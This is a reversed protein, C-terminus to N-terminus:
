ANSFAKCIRATRPNWIGRRKLHRKLRNFRITRTVTSVAHQEEFLVDEALRSAPHKGLRLLLDWQIYELKAIDIAIAADKRYDLITELCYRKKAKYMPGRCQLECDM